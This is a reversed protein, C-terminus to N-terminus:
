YGGISMVEQLKGSFGRRYSDADRGRPLTALCLDYLYRDMLRERTAAPYRAAYEEMWEYRLKVRHRLVPFIVKALAEVNAQQVRTDAFFLTWAKVGFRLAIATRPGLGYELLSVPSDLRTKRSAAHETHALVLQVIHDEVMPAVPMAAIARRMKHFFMIAQEEGTFLRDLQADEEGGDTVKTMIRRLTGDDPMPMLVKFMFRDSQAEPLDYTGEHDIPNQTALVMFPMRLDSQGNTGFQRRPAIRYTQGTVTVRREQMVELLASQTKPTARNIEDALLLTTFVPGPEFKFRIQGNDAPAPMMTGIIDIPMLDPTFQIRGFDLCLVKGLTNVLATKGLGPNGELLVHGDSYLAVLCLRIVDDMGYMHEGVCRVVEQAFGAAEQRSIDTMTVAM